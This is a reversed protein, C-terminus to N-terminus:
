QVLGGVCEGGLIHRHLYLAKQQGQQGTNSIIRHGDQRLM